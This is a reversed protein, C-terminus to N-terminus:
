FSRFELAIPKGKAACPEVRVSVCDGVCLAEVRECAYLVKSSVYVSGEGGGSGVEGKDSSDTKFKPIPISYGIDIGAALQASAVAALNVFGFQFKGGRNRTGGVFHGAHWIDTGPCAELVRLTEAVNADRRLKRRAKSWKAPTPTQTPTQTPIKGNIKEDDNAVLSSFSSDNAEGPSVALVDARWDFVQDAHMELASACKSDQAAHIVVVTFGATRLLQYHHRFDLDTSLVVFTSLAPSLVAM